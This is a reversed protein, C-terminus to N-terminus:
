DHCARGIKHKGSRVDQRGRAGRVYWSLNVEREEHALLTSRPELRASIQHGSIRSTCTPSSCRGTTRRTGRGAAALSVKVTLVDLERVLDREGHVHRLQPTRFLPPQV